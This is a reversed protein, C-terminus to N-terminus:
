YFRAPLQYRLRLERTIKEPYVIGKSRTLPLAFELPQAPDLGAQAIVRLAVLETM